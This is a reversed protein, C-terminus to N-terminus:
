EDIEGQHINKLPYEPIATPRPITPQSTSEQDAPIPHIIFIKSLDTIDESFSYPTRQKLLSKVILAIIVLITIILGFILGITLPEIPPQM